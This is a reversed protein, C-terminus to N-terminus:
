LVNVYSIIYPLIFGHLVELVGQPFIDFEQPILFLCDGSAKGKKRFALNPLLFYPTLDITIEL